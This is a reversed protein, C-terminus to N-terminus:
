AQLEELKRLHCKRAPLDALPSPDGPTIGCTYISSVCVSQFTSEVPSLYERTASQLTAQKELQWESLLVSSHNNVILFGSPLIISM